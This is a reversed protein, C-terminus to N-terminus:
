GFLGSFLDVLSHWIKQVFNLSEEVAVESSPLQDRLYNLGDGLNDGLTDAFAKTNELIKESNILEPTNQFLNLTNVIKDVNAENIYATLDNDEIHNLVLLRLDELDLEIGEQRLEALEKQLEALLLTVDDPNFGEVDENEEMVSSYVETESNAVQMQGESIEEGQMELAKYVGTLASEGTVPRISIVKIDVGDVGLNLAAKKYQMPTIRTINEPTLIEVTIGREERQRDVIVSSIMSSSNGSGSGLYRVLDDGEASDLTVDEQKYGIVDLTDNIESNTLGGGVIAIPKELRVVAETGNESIAEVKVDEEDEIEDAQVPTSLLLTTSIALTSFLGFRKM